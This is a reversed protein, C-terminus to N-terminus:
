ASFTPVDRRSANWDKDGREDKSENYDLHREEVIHVKWDRGLVDDRPAAVIWREVMVLCYAFGLISSLMFLESPDALIYTSTSSGDLDM